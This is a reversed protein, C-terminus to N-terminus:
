IHLIFTGDKPLMLLLLGCIKTWNVAWVYIFLEGGSKHWLRYFYDARELKEEEENLFEPDKLWLARAGGVVAARALKLPEDTLM